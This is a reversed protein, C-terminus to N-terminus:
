ESGDIEFIAKVRAAVHIQPAVFIQDAIGTGDLSGLSMDDSITANGAKEEESETIRAKKKHPVFDFDVLSDDDSHRLLKDEEPTGIFHRPADHPSLAFNGLFSSESDDRLDCLSKTVSSAALVDVAAFCEQKTFRM